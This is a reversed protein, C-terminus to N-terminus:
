GCFLTIEIIKGAFALAYVDPAPPLTYTSFEQLNLLYNEALFFFFDQQVTNKMQKQLLLIPFLETKHEEWSMPEVISTPSKSCIRYWPLRLHFSLYISLQLHFPPFYTVLSFPVTRTSSLLIVVLLCAPSLLVKLQWSVFIELIDLWQFGKGEHFRFGGKKTHCVDWM